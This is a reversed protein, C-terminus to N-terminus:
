FVGSEDAIPEGSPFVSWDKCYNGIEKGDLTSPLKEDEHLGFNTAYPCIGKYVRGDSAYRCNFCIRDVIGEKKGIFDNGRLTDAM